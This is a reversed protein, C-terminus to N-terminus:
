GNKIQYLTIIKKKGPVALEIKEILDHLILSQLQRRATRTNDGQLQVRLIIEQYTLPRGTRTRKM